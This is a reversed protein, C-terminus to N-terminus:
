PTKGPLPEALWADFVRNFYARLTLRDYAYLREITKLIDKLDGYTLSQQRLIPAIRRIDDQPHGEYLPAGIVVYQTFTVDTSVIGTSSQYKLTGWAAEVALHTM